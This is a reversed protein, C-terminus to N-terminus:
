GAVTLTASARGDSITLAGPPARVWLRATKGADVTISGGASTTLTHPEVDDNAVLLAIGGRFAKSTANDLTITGAHLKVERSAGAKAIAGFEAESREAVWKDYDAKSVVHLDARMFAHGSGCLMVCVTHDDGVAEARFWMHNVEGPIADVRIRFNPIAFNHWVDRSTVNMVVPADVPVTFGEGTKASNQQFLVGDTGSYNFLWGFQYGTVNVHIAGPEQPPTEIEDIASITSFALGFMIAAIVAAMVYVWLVHGREAPLVGPQPADAPRAAGPRWRYKVMSWVLWGIVGAGVVLAIGLYLYFLGDWLATGSSAVM